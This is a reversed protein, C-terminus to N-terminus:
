ESFLMIEKDFLNYTYIVYLKISYIHTDIYRPKLYVM